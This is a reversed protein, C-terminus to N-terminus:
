AYGDADGRGLERYILLRRNRSVPVEPHRSVPGPAIVNLVVVPYGAGPDLRRLGVVQPRRSVPCGYTGNENPMCAVPPRLDSKIAADVIAIAVAASAVLAAIPLAPVEEIVARDNIDARRVYRIDVVLRDDVIVALGSDTVVAAAASRARLGSRRFHRRRMLAVDLRGRNLTFM